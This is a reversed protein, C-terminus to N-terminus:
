RRHSKIKALQMQMKAKRPWTRSEKAPDPEPIAPAQKAPHVLAEPNAPISCISLELLESELFDIGFRDGEEVWAWKLPQFGVSCARLDGRKVMQFVTDAFVQIERPTFDVDMTLNGDVFRVNKAHGVPLRSSDHGWLVVPNQLFRDLKWGSQVVIDGTRDVNATSATFTVVRSEDDEPYEAQILYDKRISPNIVPIEKKSYVCERFHSYEILNPM